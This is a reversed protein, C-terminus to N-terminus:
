ATSSAIRSTAILLNDSLNVNVCLEDRRLQEALLLKEIVPIKVSRLLHEECKAVLVGVQYFHALRYVGMVSDDISEDTIYQLVALQRVLSTCYKGAIPEHTPYIAALFLIFEELKTDTLAIENKTTEEFPKRLMAAFVKSM